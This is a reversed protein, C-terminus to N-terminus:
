RKACQQDAAATDATAAVLESAFETSIREWNAQHAEVRQKHEQVVEAWEAGATRELGSDRLDQEKACMLYYLEDIKAKKLNHAAMRENLSPLECDSDLEFDVRALPPTPPQPKPPGLSTPEGVLPMREDEPIVPMSKGPPGRPPPM